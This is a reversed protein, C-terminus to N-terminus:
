VAGAVSAVTSPHSCELPCADEKVRSLISQALVSNEPALTFSKANCLAPNPSQLMKRQTESSVSSISSLNRPTNVTSQDTASLFVLGPTPGDWSVALAGHSVNGELRIWTLREQYMAM